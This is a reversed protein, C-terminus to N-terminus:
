REWVKDEPAFDVQYEPIGLSIGYRKAEKYLIPNKLDVKFVKGRYIIYHYKENKFDAYWNHEKELYQSLQETIKEVNGEPIEVTHLTWQKLYPTNHEKTVTEVETSVIRVNQLVQKNDLSEEIIVGKYDM